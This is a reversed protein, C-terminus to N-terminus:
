SPITLFILPMNSTKLFTKIYNKANVGFFRQRQRRLFLFREEFKICEAGFSLTDAGTIFKSLLIKTNEEKYSISKKLKIM